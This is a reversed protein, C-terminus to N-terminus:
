LKAKLPRCVSCNPRCCRQISGDGELEPLEDDGDDLAVLDPMEPDDGLGDTQLLLPLTENAIEGPRKLRFNADMSLYLAFVFDSNLYYEGKQLDDTANTAM